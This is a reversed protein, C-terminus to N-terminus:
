DWCHDDNSKAPAGICLLPMLFAPTVLSMHFTQILRMKQESLPAKKTCFFMIVNNDKSYLNDLNRQFLDNGVTTGDSSIGECKYNTTCIYSTTLILSTTVSVTLQLCVSNLINGVIM